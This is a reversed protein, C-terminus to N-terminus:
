VGTATWMDDLCVELVWRSFEEVILDKVPAFRRNQTQVLHMMRLEAVEADGVGTGRGRARDDDVRPFSFGGADVPKVSSCDLELAFCGTHVLEVHQWDVLLTYNSLDVHLVGIAVIVVKASVCRRVRLKHWSWSATSPKRRIRPVAGRRAWRAM